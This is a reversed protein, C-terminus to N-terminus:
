REFEKSILSEDFFNQDTQFEPKRGKTACAEAQPTGNTSAGVFGWLSDKPFVEPYFAQAV